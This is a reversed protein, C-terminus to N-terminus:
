GRGPTLDPVWPGMWYEHYTSSRTREGTRQNHEEYLIMGDAVSVRVLPWSGSACPRWWRSLAPIPQDYM